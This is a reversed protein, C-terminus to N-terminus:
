KIDNYNTFFNAVERESSLVVSREKNNETVRVRFKDGNATSIKDVDGIEKDGSVIPKSENVKLSSVQSLYKDAIMSKGMQYRALGQTTNSTKNEEILDLGIKETINHDENSPKIYYQKKETVNGKEDKVEEVGGFVYGLEDIPTESIQKINLTKPINEEDTIVGNEDMVIWSGLGKNYLEQLATSTTPKNPATDVTILKPQLTYQSSNKDLWSDLSERRRNFAGSLKKADGIPDKSGMATFLEKVTATSPLNYQKLLAGYNPDSFDTPNWKGYKNFIEKDQIATKGNVEKEARSLMSQKRKIMSNNLAIQASANGREKTSLDKTNLYETLGQNQKTLADINTIADVESKERTGPNIGIGQMSFRVDPNDLKDKYGALAFPDDRLQQDYETKSSSYKKAVRSAAASYVKNAEANIYDEAEKGSLGKFYAEDELKQSLYSKVEANNALSPTVFDFIEKESVGEWGKSTKVQFKGDPTSRYEAPRGTKPDIGKLADEKWGEALKEAIPEIDTYKAASLANYKNYAGFENTEGIGSYEQIARKSRSDRQEKTIIGKDFQDQLEKLHNQRAGYNTAITGLEGQKMEDAYLQGLRKAAKLQQHPSEYETIENLKSKYWDQIEGRRKLDPDLSDVPKVFGSNIDAEDKVKQLEKIPTMFDVGGVFQQIPQSYALSQYLSRNPVAATELGAM